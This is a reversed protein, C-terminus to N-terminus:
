ANELLWKYSFRAFTNKNKPDTAYIGYGKFVPDKCIFYYKVKHMTFTDFDFDLKIFEKKYM